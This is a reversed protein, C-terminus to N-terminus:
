NRSPFKGAICICFNMTLYPQMNDHAQSLGNVGIAYSGFQAGFNPPPNSNASQYFANPISSAGLWEDTGPPERREAGGSRTVVAVTVVHNHAPMMATTLQVSSAGEAQGVVTEGGVESYGWHMPAMGQLPPLNFYDNAVGGYTTSILAYLTPNQDVSVAAGNCLAWNVPAFSFGFCRIEGLFPQSM